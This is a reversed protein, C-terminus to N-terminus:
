GVMRWSAQCTFSRYPIITDSQSLCGRTSFCPLLVGLHVSSFQQCDNSSEVYRRRRPGVDRRRAEHRVLGQEPEVGRGQGLRRPSFEVRPGVHAAPRMGADRRVGRRLRLHDLDGIARERTLLRHGESSDPGRAVHLEGRHLLDLGCEEDNIEVLILIRKQEAARLIAHAHRRAVVPEVAASASTVTVVIEIHLVPVVALGHVIGTVRFDGGAVLEDRPVPSGVGRLNQVHAAVAFKRPAEAALTEALHHREAALQVDRLAAAHLAVELLLPEATRRSDVARRFHEALLPLDVEVCRHRQAEVVFDFAVLRSRLDRLPVVEGAVVVVEIGVSRLGAVHVRDPVARAALHRSFGHEVGARRRAADVEGERPDRIRTGHDHNRFHFPASAHKPQAVARVVPEMAASAALERVIIPIDVNGVISLEPLVSLADLRGRRFIRFRRAPEGDIREHSRLVALPVLEPLIAVLVATVAALAHRLQDRERAFQGFRIALADITQHLFLPTRRAGVDIREDGVRRHM